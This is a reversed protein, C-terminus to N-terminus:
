EVTKPGLFFGERKKGTFSLAQKQTLSESVIDERLVNRQELPLFSAKTKAVDLKDLIKFANLIEKFDDQFIKQERETLKLQARMAVTEILEKDIKM